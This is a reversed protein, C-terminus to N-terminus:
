TCVVPVRQPKKARYANIEGPEQGLVRRYFFLLANFAINQTSAAVRKEVALYTLYEEIAQAGQTQSRRKLRFDIYEGVYGVYARETAKSYHKLRIAKSLKDLLQEKKIQQGSKPKENDRSPLHYINSKQATNM